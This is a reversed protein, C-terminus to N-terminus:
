VKNNVRGSNHTNFTISPNNRRSRSGRFLSLHLLVLYLQHNLYNRDRRMVRIWLIPNGMGPSFVLLCALLFSHLDVLLTLLGVLLVVVKDLIEM